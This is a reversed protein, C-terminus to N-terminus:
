SEDKEEDINYIMLRLVGVSVKTSYWPKSNNELVFNCWAECVSPPIDLLEQTTPIDSIPYRLTSFVSM